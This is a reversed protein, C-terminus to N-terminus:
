FSGGALQRTTRAPGNGAWGAWCGTGALQCDTSPSARSLASHQSFAALTVISSHPSIKHLPMNVTCSTSAIPSARWLYVILSEWRCSSIMEQDVGWGGIGAGLLLFGM